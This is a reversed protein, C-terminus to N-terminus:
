SQLIVCRSKPKANKKKKEPPKMSGVVIGKKKAEKSNLFKSIYKSKSLSPDFNIFYLFLEYDNDIGLLQSLIRKYADNMLVSIFINPLNIKKGHLICIFSCFCLFNHEIEEKEMQTIM